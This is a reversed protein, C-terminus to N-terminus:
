LEPFQAYIVLGLYPVCGLLLVEAWQADPKLPSTGSDDCTRDKHESQLVPLSHCGKQTEFRDPCLCFSTPCMCIWIGAWSWTASHPQSTCGCLSGLASNEWRDWACNFWHLVHWMFVSVLIHAEQLCYSWSSPPLLPSLERLQWKRRGYAWSVVHLPSLGSHYSGPTPFFHQGRSIVRDLTDYQPYLPTSIYM